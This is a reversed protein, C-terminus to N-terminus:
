GESAGFNYFIHEGTTGDILVNLPFHLLGYLSPYYCSGITIMYYPEGWFVYKVAGSVKDNLTVNCKEGDYIEGYSFENQQGYQFVKDQAEKESLSYLLPEPNNSWSLLKITIGRLPPSNFKFDIFSRDTKFYYEVYRRQDKEVLKANTHDLSAKEMFDYIFERQKDLDHIELALSYSITVGLFGSAPDVDIFMRGKQTDYTYEGNYDVITDDAANAFLEAISDRQEEPIPNWIEFYEIEINEKVPKTEITKGIIIKEEIPNEQSVIPTQITQKIITWEMKEASKESVCAPDGNDRIVLVRNEKCQIDEILIGSQTQYLPSGISAAYSTSVSSLTMVALVIIVFTSSIRM